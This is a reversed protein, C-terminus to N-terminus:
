LVDICCLAAVFPDWVEHFFCPHMQAPSSVSVSYYYIVNINISKFDIGEEMNLCVKVISRFSEFHKANWGLGQLGGGCPTLCGNM